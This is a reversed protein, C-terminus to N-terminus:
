KLLEGGPALYTVNAIGFLHGVVEAISELPTFRAKPLYRINPRPTKVGQGNAKTHFTVKEDFINPLKAGPDGGFWLFRGFDLTAESFRLWIVCGSPKEALALHVNVGPTAADEHSAKLQIHRVISKAELVLDYGSDDVQPKLMEVRAYGDLWLHRM